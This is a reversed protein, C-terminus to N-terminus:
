GPRGVNEKMRRLFSMLQGFEAPTFGALARDAM